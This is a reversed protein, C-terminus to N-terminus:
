MLLFSSLYIISTFVLTLKFKNFIPLQQWYGLAQMKHCTWSSQLNEKCQLYIPPLARLLYYFGGLAMSVMLYFVIVQTQHRDTHFLHEVFKDLLIEIFELLIHGLELVSGFVMEPLTIVLGILIVYSINLSKRYTSLIM